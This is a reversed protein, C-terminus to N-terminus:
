ASWRRTVSLLRNSGSLGTHPDTITVTDGAEFTLGVGTDLVNLGVAEVPDKMSALIEDARKIMAGADIMDKESVPLMRKGYTDISTQDKRVVVLQNVGEGRGLLVIWNGIKDDIDRSTLEVNTGVTFTIARSQGRQEKFHVKDDADVWFEWGIIKAIKAFANLRNEYDFRVKISSGYDAFEGGTSSPELGSSGDPGYVYIEEVDWDIAYDATCTIRVYRCEVGVGDFSFTEDIIKCPNNTKSARETWVSNDPSTEIKYNRVYKDPTHQVVVRCIKQLKSLDIKLWQGNTQNAPSTSWWTNLDRDFTKWADASNVSASGAWKEEDLPSQGTQISTSFILYDFYNSVSGAVDKYTYLRIEIITKGLISGEGSVLVANSLDYLKVTWSDPTAPWGSEVDYQSGDSCIFRIKYKADAGGYLRALFFQAQGPYIALATRKSFVYTGSGGTNTLTLVDNDSSQSGVGTGADFAWKATDFKDDKWQHIACPQLLARAIDSPETEFLERQTILDSLKILTDFGSIVEKEYSQLGFGLPRKRVIGRFVATGDRKFVVISNAAIGYKRELEVEFTDPNPDVTQEYGATVYYYPTGNIEITNAM